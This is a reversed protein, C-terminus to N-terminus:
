NSSKASSDSSVARRTHVLLHKDTALKRTSMVIGATCALSVIVILPAAEVPPRPLLGRLM